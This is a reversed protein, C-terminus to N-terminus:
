GSMMLVVVSLVPWAEASAHTQWGLKKSSRPRLSLSAMSSAVPARVHAEQGRPKSQLKVLVVLLLALTERWKQRGVVEVLSDFGHGCSCSHAPPRASASASATSLEEAKHTLSVPM